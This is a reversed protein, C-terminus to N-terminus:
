QGCTLIIKEADPEVGNGTDLVYKGNTLRTLSSKPYTAPGGNDDSYTCYSAYLYVKQGHTYVRYSCDSRDNSSSVCKLGSTTKTAHAFTSSLLVASILILNKM